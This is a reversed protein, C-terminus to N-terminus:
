KNVSLIFTACLFILYNKLALLLPCFNPPPHTSNPPPTSTHFPSCLFICLLKPIFATLSLNNEDPRTTHLSSDAVLHNAQNNECEQTSCTFCMQLIYSPKLTFFFFDVTIFIIKKKKVGCSCGRRIVPNHTAVLTFGVRLGPLHREIDAVVETAAGEDVVLPDDRSGM